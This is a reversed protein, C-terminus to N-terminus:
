LFFVSSNEMSGYAAEIIELSRLAEDHTIYPRVQGPTLKLECMNKVVQSHGNGYIDIIPVQAWSDLKESGVGEWYTIKDMAAGGIKITANEYCLILSGEFNKPFSITNAQLTAIVSNKFQITVSIVDESEMVHGFTGGLAFVKVPESQVFHNIIDVYHIAQNMLVGGDMVRTGHWGDDYYSQERYWFCSASAYRLRGLLTEQQKIFEVTGNFRNQMVPLLIRGSELATTFIRKADECKMAIPKELIVDKGKKLAEIAMDAHLGSPTCVIVVDLESDAIMESFSEFVKVASFEDAILRTKEKEVDCVAYLRAFFENNKLAQLYKSSIRGCGVIGFKIQKATNM